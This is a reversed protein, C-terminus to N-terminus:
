PALCLLRDECAIGLEHACMRANSLFHNFTVSVAKPASTTGSTYLLLFPDAARGDHPPVPNATGRAVLDDYSETNEIKSGVAVVRLGPLRLAAIEAAPSRGKLESLALAAKAGSHGLMHGVERMGYAMHITQMVAGRENIALWSTPFEPINPLHVAVIDGAAIGVGHLGSALASVADRLGTYSLTQRATIIADREGRATACRELWTGLTEDRWWELIRFYDATFANSAPGTM